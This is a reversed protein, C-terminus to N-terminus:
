VMYIISNLPPQHDQPYIGLIILTIIQNQYTGVRSYLFEIIGLLAFNTKGTERCIAISTIANTQM